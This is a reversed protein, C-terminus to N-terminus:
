KGTIQKKLDQDLWVWKVFTNWDSGQNIRAEGHYNKIWPWWMEYQHITPMPICWSKELLKPTLEKYAKDIAPWDVFINKQAAQYAVEVDPDDIYAQQYIGSGRIDIFNVVRGSAYASTSFIIQDASRARRFNEYVAADKPQLTLNVGIDAWNNKIVSLIDVQDTGSTCVITTDFGKPFGADSLLQKAKAVNHSYLDQVSQPLDKMPVYVNKYAKTPQTPWGIIEAEGGYLNNKLADFDIAMSLAQRVRKDKFPLDTKDNRFSILMPASWVYTSQLDPNGKRMAGADGWNVGQVWDTKYTRIAAMQTSIDPIILIKIGDVYPLQDGKGPGVPNTDWYNPNKVLTASSNNVFDTLMFPGSGVANKWDTEDGYKQIVEKPVIKVGMIVLLFASWTDYTTKYVVTYDDTKTVTSAQCMRSNNKYASSVPTTIERNVSYVVDDATVKRGNVLKSAESAPNIAFTVNKRLHFIMTSPDPFEFSEALVGGWWGIGEYGFQLEFENTGAPGKSWDGGILIDHTLALTGKGGESAGTQASGQDFITINNTQMLSLVGGYKPRDTATPTTPTATATTPKVTTTPSVTASPQIVTGVVSTPATTEGAAPGCSALVLVLAILTSLTFWAIKRINV